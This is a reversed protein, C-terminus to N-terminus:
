IEDNKFDTPHLIVKAGNSLTLETTGREKTQEKVIKGAVPEEAMVPKGSVTDQYAFLEASQVDEIWKIVTAETPLSDKQDEPAMVLIDRNIDTYYKSALANVEELLIGPLMNTYFQYEYEKGPSAEENLFLSLYEQVYNNSHTKEREKYLSEQYVLIANKVRDLETQTFGFKKIRETESWVAKLGREFEGPKVVAVVSAVELGAMFDGISSGGQLFPPDAQKRLESIRSAMLNNFLVKKLSERFDATTKLEPAKHKMLVQIVTSPNEKDTVSIFQNKGELPISYEKREPANAPNKLD